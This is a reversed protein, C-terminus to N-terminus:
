KLYYFKNAHFTPILLSETGISASEHVIQPITTEWINNGEQNICVIRSQNNEDSILYIYNRIDIIPSSFLKGALDQKWRLEGDYSVSYISDYGFYINGNRDISPKSLLESLNQPGWKYEWLVNGDKDLKILGPQESSSHYKGLLYINGESDVIPTTIEPNSGFSWKIEKTLVDFATISTTNGAIYIRKGDPSFPFPLYGKGFLSSQFEWLLEGDKNLAFLTRSTDIGYINGAKDLNLSKIPIYSGTYKWKITGNFDSKYIEGKYYSHFIISSDSTIIPTCRYNIINLPIRASIIGDTNFVLLGGNPSGATLIIKNSPNIVASASLNLSDRIWFINGGSPGNVKTRGSFQPDHDLMPWPSDALSPWPIDEQYGPPKNDVPPDTPSEKCSFTLFISFIIILILFNVPRNLSGPRLM